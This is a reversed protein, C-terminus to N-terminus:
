RVEGTVRCVGGLFSKLRLKVLTKTELSQLMLSLTPPIKIKLVRTMGVIGYRLMGGSLVCKVTRFGLGKKYVDSVRLPYCQAGPERGLNRIGTIEFFRYIFNLNPDVFAARGGPKLVRLIEQLGYTLQLHHLTGGGFIKDISADAVPIQEGIGQIVEIRSSIGLYRAMRRAILGEQSMPTLLLARSAGGILAKIAQSGSGGLQLFDTGEIPSLWRYADLQSVPNARSDLWISTPDPFGELYTDERFREILGRGVLSETLDRVDRELNSRAIKDYAPIEKEINSYNMARYSEVDSSM